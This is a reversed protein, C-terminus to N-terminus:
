LYIKFLHMFYKVKVDSTTEVSQEAAGCLKSVKSFYPVNPARVGQDPFPRM